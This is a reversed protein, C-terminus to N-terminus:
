QIREKAAAAQMESFAAISKFLRRVSCYTKKKTRSYQDTAMSGAILERALEPSLAPLEAAVIAAASKDTVGTLEVLDEIRSNFQELEAARTAFFQRLAHSGLILMGVEDMDYLERLAELAPIGALQAEDIILLVRRGHLGMRISSLCRQLTMGTPVGLAMCVKAMLDRPRIDISCRVLYARDASGTRNLQSENFEDVLHQAVFTKQSGPPGYVVAMYGHQRCQEFWYRLVAVNETDYLRPRPQTRATLPNDTLYRELAERIALDSSGQQREYRDNIFARISVASYGTFHAFQPLPLGVTQMHAVLRERTSAAPPLTAELEARRIPTIRM